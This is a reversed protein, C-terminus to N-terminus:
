ARQAALRSKVAEIVDGVTEFRTLEEDPLEISFADELELVLDVADLSNLGLEDRLATTHTLEGLEGDVLERLRERLTELIDADNM